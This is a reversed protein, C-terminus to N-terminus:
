GVRNRAQLKEAVTLLFQVTQRTEPKTLLRLTALVGGASQPRTRSEAATEQVAAFLEGLLTIMAENGLQSVLHEVFGSLRDVMSDTLAMRACHITEVLDFLTDIAGVHHLATLRELIHLLAEKTEPRNLQDAVELLNGALTALRDVMPDSLAETLAGIVRLLDPGTAGQNNGADNM